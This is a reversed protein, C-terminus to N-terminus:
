NSYFHRIFPILAPRMRSGSNSKSQSQRGSGCARQRTGLSESTKIGQCRPRYCPHYLLRRRRCPIVAWTTSPAQPSSTSERAKSPSIGALDSRRPDANFGFPFYFMQQRRGVKGLRPASALLVSFRGAAPRAARFLLGGSRQTCGTM